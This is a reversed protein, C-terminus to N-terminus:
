LVYVDMGSRNLSKVMMIELALVVRSMKMTTRAGSNELQQLYERVQRTEDSMSVSPATTATGDNSEMLCTSTNNILSIPGNINKVNWTGNRDIDFEVRTGQPFSVTLSNRTCSDLRWTTMLRQQIEVMSSQTILERELEAISSQSNVNSTTSQLVGDLEHRLRKLRNQAEGLSQSSEIKNRKLTEIRQKLDKVRTAYRSIEIQKMEEMQLKREQERVKSEQIELENRMEKFLLLDKELKPVTADLADKRTQEIKGQWTLMELKARAEALQFAHEAMIMINNNNMKGGASGTTTTTSSSIIPLKKVESDFGYYRDRITAELQRSQFEWQRAKLPNIIAEYLDKGSCTIPDHNPYMAPKEASPVSDIGISQEDLHFKTLLDGISPIHIFSNTPKLSSSSSSNPQSTSTTAAAAAGPYSMLDLTPSSSDFNLHQSQPQQQQQHHQHQQQQQQNITPTTMVLNDLSPITMMTPSGTIIIAAASSTHISRSSSLSMKRDNGSVLDLLSVPDMTPSRKKYTTIEEDECGILPAHSSNHEVLDTLSPVALTVDDDKNNIAIKNASSANRNINRNTSTNSSTNNSSALQLLSPPAVVMTPSNEHNMSSKYNNTTGISTDNLLANLELANMTPSSSGHIASSSSSSTTSMPQDLSSLLLDHLEMPNMTPSPPQIDDNYNEEEDDEQHLLQVRHHNLRPAPSSQPFQQGVSSKRRSKQRSTSKRQHHQQQHDFFELTRSNAQTAGDDDVDEELVANNMMDTLPRSRHFQVQSPALPTLATIQDDENYLHGETVTFGVSISSNRRRTISAGTNTKKLCSKIIIPPAVSSTSSQQKTSTSNKTAKSTTETSPPTNPHGHQQQQQQLLFSINNVDMTNRRNNYAMTVTPSSLSSANEKLFSLGNHFSTVTRDDDNDNEKDMTSSHSTTTTTPSYEMPKTSPYQHKEASQRNCPYFFFV